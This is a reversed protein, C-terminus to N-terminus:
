GAASVMTIYVSAPSAYVERDCEDAIIEIGM